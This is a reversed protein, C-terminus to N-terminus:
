IRRDDDSKTQTDRDLDALTFVKDERQFPMGVFHLM